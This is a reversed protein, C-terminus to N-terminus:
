ESLVVLWFMGGLFDMLRLSLLWILEVLLWSVVCNLM